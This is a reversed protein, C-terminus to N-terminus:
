AGAIRFGLARLTAAVPPSARHLRLTFNSFERRTWYNGRLQEFREPSQKLRLSDERVPYTHAVAERIIEEAAKGRCDITREPPMPPPPIAPPYWGSLSPIGFFRAAERVCAATGNAKGDASYGAIHPTAIFAKELLLPDVAPEGEWVDLICGSLNGHLAHKLAETDAVAGRSSNIFLAGAKMQGFFRGSALHRTKYPGENVLPTHCTVIDSQALLQELPAFQATGERAARPPDNLIVHMGLTAAAQAVKSGVNGAGIIGLTTGAPRISRGAMWELIAATIYQQVSSSNCGPANTWRIGAADCWATDIHDYGITATAILRVRTGHLLAADCRTRTRTLIADAGAADARTIAAGPLYAVDAYPELAGRLFPIKDDAIITPRKM